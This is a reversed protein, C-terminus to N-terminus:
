NINRKINLNCISQRKDKIHQIITCVNDEPMIEKMCQEMFSFTLPTYNKYQGFKLSGDSLQITSDSLKNTDVYMIIDKNIDSREDRLDKLQENILRIQNDLSVWKKIREKFIESM